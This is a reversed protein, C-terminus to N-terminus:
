IDLGALWNAASVISIGHVTKPRALNQVLQISERPNLRRQFYHLGPSLSDESTKVEVLRDLKHDIEILFDVERREKDRV